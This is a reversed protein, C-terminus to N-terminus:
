QNCSLFLPLTRKYKIEKEERAIKETYQILKLKSEIAKLRNEVNSKITALKSFEYSKVGEFKL